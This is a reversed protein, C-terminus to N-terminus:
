ARPTSTWRRTPWCGSSRRAIPSRSGFTKRQKAYDIAMKLMREATGVASAAVSLRNEDLFRM